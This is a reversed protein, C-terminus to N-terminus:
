LGWKEVARSWRRGEKSLPRRHHGMRSREREKDRERVEVDLKGTGEREKGVELAFHEEEDVPEIRPLPVGAIKQHHQDLADIVESSLISRWLLRPHPNRGRPTSAGSNSPSIAPSPAASQAYAEVLQSAYTDHPIYHYHQSTSSSSPVHPHHQDYSPATYSFSASVPAYRYEPLEASQLKTSKPPPSYLAQSTSTAPSADEYSTESNGMMAQQRRRREQEEGDDSSSSRSTFSSPSSSGDTVYVLGDYRNVPLGGERAEEEGEEEEGGAYFEDGMDSRYDAHYGEDEEEEEDYADNEDSM